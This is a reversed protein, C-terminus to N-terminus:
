EGFKERYQSPTLGTMKKFQRMFYSESSYGCAYAIDALSVTIDGLMQKAKEIRFGILDEFVSKGFVQKYQRQLTSKAMGSKLCLMEITWQQEPAIRMAKRLEYIVANVNNKRDDTMNESIGAKDEADGGLMRDLAASLYTIFRIYSSDYVRDFSGYSLSIVGFKRENFHLLSLYIIEPLPEDHLYNAADDPCFGEISESETWEDAARSIKTCIRTEDDPLFIELRQAQYITEMHAMACKLIDTVNEALGLAYPMDDTFVEESWMRPVADPFRKMAQRAPISTCGCSNGVIFGSESRQVRECLKGTINRYLRRVADAGLQYHNRDYTTLRIDINATFPFGDYGVVAVDDPVSIGCKLLTKILAMATVDNGCVVAEPMSLSGSSLRQAYEIASDVWFTGYTYYSEDFHLGYSKMTDQYARLRTIAQFSDEPGTLCYIKKYNHVDILHRVVKSFDDYDDYQTSDFIPHPKEDVTMIYKNSSLLLSEIYEIVDSGMTIEDKIYLFGDFADAGILQYIDRERLAHAQICRTFNVLPSLIVADCDCARLQATAGRVIERIHTRALAATVIGILPRKHM